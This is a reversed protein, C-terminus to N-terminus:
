LLPGLRAVPAPGLFILGDRLTVPLLVRTEGEGDTERPLALLGLNATAAQRREILGLALLRDIVAAPNRSRTRFAGVPRYSDDLSIDGEAKIDLAGWRVDARRFDLRGLGERWLRLVEGPEGGAVPGFLTTAVAVYALDRGFPEQRDVPLTVSSLEVAIDIRQPRSGSGPDYPGAGAALRDISVETGGTELRLSRTELRGRALQGGGDFFLRASAEAADLELPGASPAFSNEVRHTGSLDLVIEFPNWLWAHGTFSPASWTWGKPSAVVPQGLRAKLALPFGGIEPGQYAIEYGRARQQASWADIWQALRDASWHWYAAMAAGALALALLGLISLRRFSM